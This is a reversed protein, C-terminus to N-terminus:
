MTCLVMESRTQLIITTVTYMNSLLSKPKTFKMGKQSAPASISHVNCTACYGFHGIFCNLLAFFLHWPVMEEFPYTPPDM